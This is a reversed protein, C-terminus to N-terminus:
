GKKVIVEQSAEDSKGLSSVRLSVKYRGEPVDAPLEFHGEAKRTGLASTVQNDVSGLDKWSKESEDYYAVTRTEIVKVDKQGDAAMVYYAGSLKMEKGPALRSPAVNFNQIRVQNGQSPKYGVKGATTQADAVPYSNLDSYLTMCHGWALAAGLAGGAVAGIVTASNKNHNNSTLLGILAGGMTGLVTYHTICEQKAKSREEDTMATGPPPATACSALLSTVLLVSSFRKMPTKM